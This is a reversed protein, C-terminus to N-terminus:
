NGRARFRFREREELRAGHSGLTERQKRGEMEREHVLKGNELAEERRRERLEEREREKNGHYDFREREREAERERWKREESARVREDLKKWEPTIEGSHMTRFNLERSRAAREEEEEEEDDDDEEEERKQNSVTNEEHKEHEEEPDIKRGEESPDRRHKDHRDDEKLATKIETNFMRESKEPVERIFMREPRPMLEKEEEEEGLEHKNTEEAIERALMEELERKLSRDATTLEEEDKPSNRSVEDQEDQFMEAPLEIEERKEDNGKLEFDRDEKNGKENIGERRAMKQALERELRRFFEEANVERFERDEKAAVPYESEALEDVEPFSREEKEPLESEILQRTATMIPPIGEYKEEETTRIEKELPASTTIVLLSCLLCAVQILVPGSLLYIILTTPFFYDSIIFTLKSMKVVVVKLHIFVIQGIPVLLDCPCIGIKKLLPHM